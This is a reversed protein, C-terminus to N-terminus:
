RAYIIYRKANIQLESINEVIPNVKSAKRIINLVESKKYNRKCSSRNAMTYKRYRNRREAEKFLERYNERYFTFNGPSLVMKEVKNSPSNLLPLLIPELKEKQMGLIRYGNALREFLRQIGERQLSSNDNLMMNTYGNLEDMGIIIGKAM